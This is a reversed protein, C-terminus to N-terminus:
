GLNTADKKDKVVSQYLFFIHKPLIKNVPFAVKESITRYCSQNQM